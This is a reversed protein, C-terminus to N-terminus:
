AHGPSASEVRDRGADKARYLAQDAEAYLAHGAIRHLIPAVAVGISVTVALTEGSPLGTRMVAVAARLQEAVRLAGDHDTAPLLVGFEEGGYRAFVDSARLRARVAQAFEALVQDGAAHGHRDNVRKFHDLDMLLLALPLRDRHCRALEHELLSDATARNMCGTLADHTALEQMRRAVREFSALVFGFGAGLMCLFTMLFTLGQGLSSQMLETYEAPATWAHVARGLLALVALAAPAGVLWLSRDASARARWLTWPILGLPGALVLSVVITRLYLPSGVMAAVALCGAAAYVVLWRPLSRGTAFRLVTAAYVSAGALILWNGALISLWLPLVPRLAFATFGGLLLWSGVTWAGLGVGDPLRRRVFSLEIALLAYGLVLATILTPIHLQM